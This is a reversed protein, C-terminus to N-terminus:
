RDPVPVRTPPMGNMQYFPYVPYSNREVGISGSVSFTKADNVYRLGMEARSYMGFNNYRLLSNSQWNKNMDPSLFSRNFNIYAPAVSIGAFAYLNDNLKRNLQLGIPASLVTANGGSFFSFSTSIGGYKSLFWKKNYSSDNNHSGNIFNQQQRYDSFSGPLLTQAKIVSLPLLLLVILVRM